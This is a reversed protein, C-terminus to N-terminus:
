DTDENYNEEEDTNDPEEDSSGSEATGIHKEGNRPKYTSTNIKVTDVLEGNQYVKKYLEYKKGDLQSVEIHEEGKPLKDDYVIEYDGHPIDEIFKNELEIRRGSGFRNYGYINVCVKGSALYSEIYLPYGTNNRFKLDLYDGALTADFAYPAYGVKLSHNYREVIELEAYLAADYLATSVQCMGGGISDELKGGVITGAKAWGNSETCPNFADNTSFVEDPYLITGNIKECGNRLNQIRNEDGGTYPSAFSSLENDIYAFDASTVSPMITEIDFTIEKNFTRSDMLSMAKALIEDSNVKYGVTEPQVEFGSGNHTCTANHPEVTNQTGVARMFSTLKPRSYTYIGFDVGNELVRMDELYEEDVSGYELANKLARDINFRIDLDEYSYKYEKSADSSKVTLAYGTMQTDVTSEVLSKAQEVTLGSVDIGDISIGQMYTKPKRTADFDAVAFANVFKDSNDVALKSVIGLATTVALVFLLIRNTKRKAQKKRRRRRIRISYGAATREAM